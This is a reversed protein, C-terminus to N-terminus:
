LLRKLVTNGREGPTFCFQTLRWRKKWSAILISQFFWFLVTWRNDSNEIPTTKNQLTGFEINIVTLSSHVFSCAKWAFFFNRYASCFKGKRVKKACLSTCQRFLEDGTMAQFCISRHRTKTESSQKRKRKSFNQRKTNFTAALFLSESDITRWYGSLTGTLSFIYICTSIFKSYSGNFSLM